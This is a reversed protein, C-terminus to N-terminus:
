QCSERLDSMRYISVYDDRYSPRAARFSDSIEKWFYFNRYFVVHSFGDDKLRDLATLYSIRNEDGCTVARQNYWGDLVYNSRIYDYASDPTRSIAGEAHPYGSLAQYLNYVKANARGMPLNILRIGNNDEVALWNLSAFQSDSIEQDKVPIYYEFAVVAILLLIFNAPLDIVRIERLAAIGYSSLVAFPLLAGILFNDTESFAQFAFPVLDNLYYKPLLINSYAIGNIQLVSGLRLIAFCAWLALWPLMKRRTSRNFLGFAILLLPLYGLYSTSSTLAYAPIQLISEGFPGFVPSRHNVFYSILDTRFEGGVHWKVAEGFSQSDALMPYIRWASSITIAVGLMLIALWFSRDRWKYAAYASVLLGLTILLCFYAYLSIVSTFGTLLGSVILLVSRKEEIGRQLCYMALPLTAVFSIDPHNPHGIVHPSFGLVVAGFLALWKDKLLYLIYVYASLATIFVMLLFTLSFANALPMITQLANVVIIHPIFLPHYTLSLGQPYFMLNTFFRDTQGSLFLKGFWVDWIKIFVDYSNGTPLWFVDTRFVYVITPFTMVLTLVTTVVIFHLHERLPNFLRRM